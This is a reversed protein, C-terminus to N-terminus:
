DFLYKRLSVIAYILTGTILIATADASLVGNSGLVGVVILIVLIAGGLVYPMQLGVDGRARMSMRYTELTPLLSLRLERLERGTDAQAELADLRGEIRKLSEEIAATASPRRTPTKRATKKKATKKKAAM